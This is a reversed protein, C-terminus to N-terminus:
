RREGRNRDVGEKERSEGGVDREAEGNERREVAMDKERGTEEKIGGQMERGTDGSKVHRM